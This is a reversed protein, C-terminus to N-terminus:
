IAPSIPFAPMQHAIEKSTLFRIGYREFIEITEELNATSYTLADDPPIELKEAPVTMGKLANMFGGPTILALMRIEPSQILFAHPKYKPLFACEGAELHFVEEGAYVDLKGELVYYLEHEHTHVHPPPETGKRMHSLVLDFAGDTEQEQALQTCLIGKYWTSIELSPSQKFAKLTSIEKDM